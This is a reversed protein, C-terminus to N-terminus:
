HGADAPRTVRDQTSSGGGSSRPRQGSDAWAHDGRGAEITAGAKTQARHNTSEVIVTSPQAVVNGRKVFAAETEPDLEHQDKEMRDVLSVRTSM